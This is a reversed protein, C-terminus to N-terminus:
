DKSDLKDQERVTYKDINMMCHKLTRMPIGTAKMRVEAEIYTKATFARIEKGNPLRTRPLLHFKAPIIPPAHRPINMM